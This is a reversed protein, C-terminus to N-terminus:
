KLHFISILKKPLIFNWLNMIIIIPLSSPCIPMAYCESILKKPHIFCMHQKWVGTIGHVCCVCVCVDSVDSLFYTIQSVKATENGVYQKMFQIYESPGEVFSSFCYKIPLMKDPIACESETTMYISWVHNKISCNLKTNEVFNVTYNFPIRTHRNLM